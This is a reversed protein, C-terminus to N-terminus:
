ARGPARHRQQAHALLADIFADGECGSQAVVAEDDLAGDEIRGHRYLQAIEPGRSGGGLYM